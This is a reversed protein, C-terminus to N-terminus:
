IEELLDLELNSIDEKAIKNLALQDQFKDIKVVKKNASEIVNIQFNDTERTIKDLINCYGLYLMQCDKKFCMEKSLM